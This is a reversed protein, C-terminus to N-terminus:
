SMYARPHEYSLSPEKLNLLYPIIQHIHQSNIEELSKNTVKDERREKRERGDRNIMRRSKRREPKKM